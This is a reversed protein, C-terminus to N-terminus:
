ISGPRGVAAMYIASEGAGDVGLLDNLEDDYLAGIGCAGLGEATAALYLNEGIHGADLYIYRYARQRYKWRSREFVASFVFVASAHYCVEQDLAAMAVEVSLDGKRLEELMHERIAYHYLGKGMREVRNVVVYTEIPYLAGASPATRFEYGQVKRQVGNSAWLLFSLQELTVPEPSFERVSRRSSLAEGLSMGGGTGPVPLTFTESDPYVKYTEPKGSWDLMGGPMRGRHYMTEKQYAGGTGEPM